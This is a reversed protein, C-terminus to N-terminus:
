AVRMTGFHTKYVIDVSYMIINIYEPFQLTHEPLARVFVAPHYYDRERESDIVCLSVGDGRDLSCKVSM